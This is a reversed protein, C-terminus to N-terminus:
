LTSINGNGGGSLPQFFSLVLHDACDSFVGDESFDLNVWRQSQDQKYDPFGFLGKIYTYLSM